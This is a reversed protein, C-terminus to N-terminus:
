SFIGEGFYPVPDASVYPNHRPVLAGGLLHEVLNTRAETAAWVLSRYATIQHDLARLAEGIRRQEAFPPLAIPFQGLSQTSLSPVIANSALGKIRELIRPQSLYGLLYYADITDARKRRLRLLNSGFLWGTQTDTVLAPPGITGSRICLIDGAVLRFRALDEALRQSVRDESTGDVRGNHLNKPLVVPIEGAASRTEVPLRSYSPGAKVDCLEHLPVYRWDTPLDGDHHHPRLLPVILEHALAEAEQAEAHSLALEHVAREAEFLLKSPEERTGLDQYDAPNLSYGHDRIVEVPVAASLGVTGEHTQGSDRDAQFSRYASKIVQQDEDTLIRQGNEVVGLKGADIFLVQDRSDTPYRLFWVSAAIPTGPFLQPPLTLICEVAGREVMAQRINRERRNTSICAIKPLVVAARGGVNLSAVAHQLWAFNDNGQPLPGFPWRIEDRRQGTFRGRNFPPNTIVLDATIQPRDPRTWPPSPDHKLQARLGRLALNMEALRLTERHSGEGHAIVQSPDPFHDVLAALTEGGRVNPDYVQRVLREPSVLIGAMLRVLGEPTPSENSELRAQTAHEDLLLRFAIRGLRDSAQIVAILDRPNHFELRTLAVRMGPEHGRNRLQIDVSDGILRLLKDAEASGEEPIVTQQLSSWTAPATTRLVTLSFLLDLSDTSSTASAHVRAKMMKLLDEVLQQSSADDEQVALSLTVGGDLSGTRAALNRRARDAYTTGEPEDENRSSAPIRRNEWWAMVEWLRFYKSEGSRVPKPFNSFRKRWNIVAPLQVEVLRALESPPVLRDNTNSESSM